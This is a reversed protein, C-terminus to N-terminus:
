GSREEIRYVTKWSVVHHLAELLVLCLQASAAPDAKFPLSPVSQMPVAAM